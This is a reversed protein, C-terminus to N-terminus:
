FAMHLLFEYLSSACYIVFRISHNKLSLKKMPIKENYDRLTHTFSVGLSFLIEWKAMSYSVQLVQFFQQQQEIAAGRESARESFCAFSGNDAM